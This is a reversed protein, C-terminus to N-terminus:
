GWRRGWGQHTWGVGDFTAWARGDAMAADVLDGAWIPVWSLLVYAEGVWAATLWTDWPPFSDDSAAQSWDFAVFARPRSLETEVGLSADRPALRARLACFADFPKLLAASGPTAAGDPFIAEATERLEESRLAEPTRRTDCWRLCTDLRARLEEPKILPTLKM